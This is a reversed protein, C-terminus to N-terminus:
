ICHRRAFMPWRSHIDIELFSTLFSNSKKFFFYGFFDKSRPANPDPNGKIAAPPPSSLCDQDGRGCSCFVAEKNVKKGFRSMAAGHLEV